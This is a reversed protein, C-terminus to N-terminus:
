PTRGTKRRDVYHGDVAVIRSSGDVAVELELAVETGAFAFMRLADGRLGLREGIEIVSEKSAHAYITTRV